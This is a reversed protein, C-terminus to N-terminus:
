KRDNRLLIYFLNKGDNTKYQKPHYRGASAEPIIGYAAIFSSSRVSATNDRHSLKLAGETAKKVFDFGVAKRRRDYFLIVYPFSKLNHKKYFGSNFSFGGAKNLSITYNFRAGVTAFKEFSLTEENEMVFTITAYNIKKDIGM